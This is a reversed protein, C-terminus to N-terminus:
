PAAAPEPLAGPTPATADRPRALAAAAAAQMARVQAGPTPLIELVKGGVGPYMAALASPLAGEPVHRAKLRAKHIKVFGWGAGTIIKAYGRPTGDDANQRIMALVEGPGPQGGKTQKTRGDRYLCPTWDRGWSFLSRGAPGKAKRTSQLRLAKRMLQARNWFKLVDRLLAPDMGQTRGRVEIIGHDDGALGKGSRIRDATALMEPVDVGAIHEAAQVIRLLGDCYDGPKM